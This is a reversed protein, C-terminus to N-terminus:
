NRIAEFAKDAEEAPPSSSQRTVNREIAKIKVQLAVGLAACVGGMAVLLM